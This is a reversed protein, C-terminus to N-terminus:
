IFLINVKPPLFVNRAGRGTQEITVPQDIGQVKNREKLARDFILIDLLPVPKLVSSWFCM